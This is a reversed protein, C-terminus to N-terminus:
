SHCGQYLYDRPNQEEVIISWLNQMVMLLIFVVIITGGAFGWVYIDFPYVITDYSVIEKPQGTTILLQHVYMFHLFDVLKYRYHRLFTQGIGMESQKTSVKVFM